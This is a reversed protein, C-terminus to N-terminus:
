GQENGQVIKQLWVRCANLQKKKLLCPLIQATAKEFPINLAPYIANCKLIHYANASEVVQSVKGKDLSFLTANLENCLEGARLTGLKGGDKGTDCESYNKAELAFDQPHRSLREQIETITTLAPDFGTSPIAFIFISNGYASICYFFHGTCLFFIIPVIFYLMFSALVVFIGTIIGTTSTKKM